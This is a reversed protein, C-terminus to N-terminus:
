KNLNNEIIVFVKKEFNNVLQAFSQCWKRNLKSWTNEQFENPM